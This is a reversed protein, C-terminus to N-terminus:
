SHVADLGMQWFDAELRSAQRFTEALADFRARGARTLWLDDLAEAAARAVARYEPGAYMEIWDRYPNGAYKTKPDRVLREAIEAYGLVCPALAVELDLLDGALGRELVYRTYAITANAEPLAAMDAESMGWGACYKVHLGMELDLIAKLGGAAYRMEALTASKFVALGYARAFHILFLYDQALYHRFAAEPLTGAGLRRVFDHNVYREWDDACASRLPAFLGDKAWLANDTATGTDPNM